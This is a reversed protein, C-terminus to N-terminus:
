PNPILKCSLLMKREQTLTCVCSQPWLNINDGIFGESWGDNSHHDSPTESVHRSLMKSFKSNIQMVSANKKRTLTCVCSQPWLDISDGIFGESWRDNNDNDSPTESVHRSLMKSSKPNIQMVSANKKRSLTCVYSQPWLDINDGIFGASKNPEDCCTQHSSGLSNWLHERLKAGM